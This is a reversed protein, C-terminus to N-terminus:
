DSGDADETPDLASRLSKVRTVIANLVARVRPTGRNDKHVVLYIDPGPAPVPSAVRRLMPDGDARFRALSTLGAGCRAAQQLAEHSTTQLGLRANRTLDELWLSQDPSSVDDVLVLYRHGPCGDNTDPMGYRALYDASAFLGFGLHGIRRTVLDNQVPRTLRIAIDAERMSLSLERPDPILEVLIDPHRLQLEAFCPALVHAALTEACTVRVVGELRADRGGVNRVLALTEAEVRRAQTRVSEGALTLVYGDPTRHLLRVGLRGELNALRRGVTSQAVALEKAAATLSGHRAVALFFRLDDWDIM